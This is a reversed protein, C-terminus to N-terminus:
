RSRKKVGGIKKVENGEAGGEGDGAHRDCQSLESSGCSLSNVGPPFIERRLAEEFVASLGIMEATLLLAGEGRDGGAEKVCFFRFVM